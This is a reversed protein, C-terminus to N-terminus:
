TEEEIDAVMRLGGVVALFLLIAGVVILGWEWRIAAVGVGLMFLGIFGVGNVARAKDQRENM